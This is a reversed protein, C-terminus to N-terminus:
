VGSSIVGKIAKGAIISLEEPSVDERKQIWYIITDMLLSSIMVSVVDTNKIYVGNNEFTRIFYDSIYGKWKIPFSPNGYTGLLAKLYKKNSLVWVYTDLFYPFPENSNHSFFNFKYFTSNVKLLENLM